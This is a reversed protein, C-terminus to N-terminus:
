RNGRRKRAAVRKKFRRISVKASTRPGFKALKRRKLIGAM